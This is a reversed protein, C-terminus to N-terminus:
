LLRISGTEANVEIMEGGKVYDILGKVNTVCPKGLERCVIAAHSLIGGYRTVVGGAKMMLPLFAPTTMDTILIDGSEIDAGEIDKALIVRAKGQAIGKSGVQGRLSAAGV